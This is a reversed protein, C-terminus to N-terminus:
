AKSNTMAIKVRKESRLNLNYKNKYKLDNKGRGLRHHSAPHHDYRDLQPELSVWMNSLEDFHLAFLVSREFLKQQHDGELYQHLYTSSKTSNEKVVLLNDQTNILTILNRHASIVQLM